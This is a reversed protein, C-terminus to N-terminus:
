EFHIHKNTYSHKQSPIFKRKGTVNTDVPILIDDDPSEFHIHSNAQPLL